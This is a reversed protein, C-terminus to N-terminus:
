CGGPREWGRNSARLRWKPSPTGRSRRPSSPPWPWRTPAASSPPPAAGPGARRTPSLWPPSPRSTPAARLHPHRHQGLGHRRLGAAAPGPAGPFPGIPLRMDPMSLQAITAGDHFEVMSHVISQPHVVVDIHDFGVGFLEHAEIVEPGKNMLTSSDITIKAGHGLHPAQRRGRHRLLSTERAAASCAAARPSCSPRSVETADGARARQWLPPTSATSRCSRARGGRERVKAVVPGGAILSEKNAFSSASATSSPAAPLPGFGCFGVVANLVVDVDPHAALEALVAPGDVGEIGCLRACEPAVGFEAAQQALLDGNRGTALVVVEYQDRHGRIVDLAQTGISGTSGLVAVRVKRGPGDTM